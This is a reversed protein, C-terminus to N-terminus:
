TPLEKGKTEHAFFITILGILNVCLVVAAAYRFPEAFGERAFTSTLGGLAFPGLAAIYRAVNYCFGTGTSRLRTPFLEPFYIAYGGFVTMQCFGLLPVMWYMQELSNMTLFVTTGMGWAMLFAMTFAGKRGFSTAMWTFALIGFFSGIQQLVDQLGVYRAKQAEPLTKLIDRLLEPTWFSVGWVSIVGSMALLVGIIVNRRWRPDGLLEKLSGMEVGGPGDELAKAKALKWSEPEELKRRVAIVLFAPLLGAIMILRWGSLIGDPTFFSEGWPVAIRMPGLLASVGAGMINGVASLAQLLGLAVPRARAPLTESVLAVGAAFEGGVGIGTLFRYFSYDMWNTSLASLGTFMSYLIITILMTRARGWRDGLVGFILGGTAWGFLFIATAIGGYFKVDADFTETKPLLEQLAPTRALRFLTQDMTDFLWGLSSVFFIWWHYRNMEAYWPRGDPPLSNSSISSIDAM